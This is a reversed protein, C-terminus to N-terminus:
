LGSSQSSPSVTDSDDRNARHSKILVVFQKQNDGDDRGPYWVFNTLINPNPPSDGFRGNLRRCPAKGNKRDMDVIQYLAVGSKHEKDRYDDIIGFVDGVSLYDLRTEDYEQPEPKRKM